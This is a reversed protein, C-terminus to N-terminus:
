DVNLYGEQAYPHGEFNHLPFQRSATSKQYLSSPSLSPLSSHPNSPKFCPTTRKSPYPNRGVMNQSMKVQYKSFISKSSSYTEKPTMKRYKQTISSDKSKLNKKVEKLELNKDRIKLNKMSAFHPKSKKNLKLSSPNKMKIIRNQIEKIRLDLLARENHLSRNRHTRHTKEFSKNDQRSKHSSQPSKGLKEQSLENIRKSSMRKKRQTYPVQLTDYQQVKQRVLSQSTLSVKSRPHDKKKSLISEKTTIRILGSKKFRVGTKNCCCVLIM